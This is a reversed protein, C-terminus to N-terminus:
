NCEIQILLSHLVIAGTEKTSWEPPDRSVSYASPKVLLQFAAYVVQNNKKYGATKCNQLIPYFVVQVDDEKQVVLNCWQAQGKTLPQGKDLICRVAGMKCGYFATHWKDTSTNGQNKLPFKVWGLLSNDKEGNKLKICNLCYCIPEDLLFYNDTFFFLIPFLM